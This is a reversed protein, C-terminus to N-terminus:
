PYRRPAPGDPVVRGLRGRRRAVPAYAPALARSAWPAGLQAVVRGLADGASSRRGDADVLHISRAREEDSLAELLAAAEDDQFPLLALRHRRDARVITRAVFRCFRCRGDYVLV